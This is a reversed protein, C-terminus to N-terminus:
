EDRGRALFSATQCLTIFSELARGNLERNQEDRTPFKRTFAGDKPRRQNSLLSSRYAEFVGTLEDPPFAQRTNAEARKIQRALESKMAAVPLARLTPLEDRLHYAWRDSAEDIFSNVWDQLIEVYLHREGDARLVDDENDEWPCLATAHEGSRRCVTIQLADRGGNKAAKEAKRAAELAFRLDEKYHVVALGASVTARQGMLLRERGGSDAAWNERFTNRLDSAAALATSTPLLALVDDGGAYILTGQHHDEVIQRVFHLAFNALAQSIAAHLAPGVPRQADLGDSAGAHKEFYARLDPHLIERVQPSKDGSLWGALEDGDLMLVAYYAPPKSDGCARRITEWIDPPCPDNPDFEPNPWHM